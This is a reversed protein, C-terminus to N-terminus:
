HGKTILTIIVGIIATIVAGLTTKSVWSITKLSQEILAFRVDNESQKAAVAQMKNECEERQIFIERLRDIDERDLPM